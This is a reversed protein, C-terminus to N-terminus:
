FNTPRLYEDKCKPSCFRREDYGGTPNDIVKGCNMCRYEKKPANYARGRSASNKGIVDMTESRCKGASERM